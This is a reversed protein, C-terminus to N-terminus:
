QVRGLYKDLWGLVASVLQAKQETVDHPTNLVVHLKESPPTGVMRFFPNQSKELSFVYDDRGNVMLMPIKLRPAFDAQDGGAPPTDLFYGGDLFMATKLRSQAITTYIVGEASGMSVGLYAIKNKDIDPRTDLYDLSRGLDKSRNAFYALTQAAGVYVIKGQREYTGYYIPYLVARGSQVIYDFFKVDGLNSSDHLDLVRASPCFVVTQYPPHVNKPVFLYAAMREGNYAADYTIKEERWDATDHVVGEVKAHLPTQDYSYLPLYARFVDDPAPKYKSFDRVFAKVPGTLEPALPTTNRVCRFGNESSRDFPPLAQPDAYLYTQSNWAGGLIFKTGEGTDNTVWERVNGAMDYTGYSGVGQFKGVPAPESLSINSTQVIYPTADPSAAAYWEAFAPLSKDVFAAYASAEYWSVGSVPYDARGEPYHGGVWKSPGARGTTDRFVAMAADWTLESSNRVFKNTWYKRNEYGGADVFQQYQRNTVEYRDIFYPPLRYPGVRGVFGIFARWPGGSVLSMGPPAGVQSDLPFNMNPQMFHASIYEGVGSKSIKWRFYGAPVSINKLPTTGLPFWTSDPSLYDKMEVTAGPPSSAISVAQTSQQAIQALRADGPLYQQAKKLLLFAALSLHDDQLKTIEPISQNRAWERRESGRYLWAGLAISIVALLAIPIAYRLALRVERPAPPLAAATTQLLVTSIEQSMEAASQYRKAVDKELARVVIREVEKPVDPRLERVPKMPRAVISRLVGVVSDGNFPREATLSEYLVVGLSWLDSRDDVNECEAQEPSMYYPTGVPGVTEGFSQTADTAGEAALLKALGFDLVKARGKATVIINGPKLDRHIIGQGHAEELAKSVDQALSLAENTPIAGSKLRESLPVGAVYEMVLYETGDQEGVDYVSAINPHNLKALALAEKHFRRRATEEVQVGLRFVKIAVDRELRKDRARYVVGMGGAGIRGVIEYPGLMSGTKPAERIGLTVDDAITNDGQDHAAILSEVERRLSPDACTQDLYARRQEPPRELAGALVKKVDQWQEPTV